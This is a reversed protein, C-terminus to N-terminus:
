VGPEGFEIEVTGDNKARIEVWGCYQDRDDHLNFFRRTFERQDETKIAKFARALLLGGRDRIPDVAGDSVVIPRGEILLRTSAM